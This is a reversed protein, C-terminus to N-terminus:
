FRLEIQLGGGSAVAPGVPPALWPGVRWSGIRARRPDLWARDGAEWRQHKARQSGGIALYVIGTVLMLGGEAVGYWGFAAFTRCGATTNSPCRSPQTAMWVNIGGAGARLLGLPFLVSGITLAREGDPPETQRDRAEGLTWYGGPPIESPQDSPQPAAALTALLAITLVHPGAHSPGWGPALLATALERREARASGAVITM